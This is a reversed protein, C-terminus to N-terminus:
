LDQSMRAANSPPAKIEVGEAALRRRIESVPCQAGARDLDDDLTSPELEGVQVLDEVWLRAEALALHDVVVRPDSGADKRVQTIPRQGELPVRVTDVLRVEVLLLTRFVTGVPHLRLRDPAFAVAAVDVVRDAVVQRCQDPKGVEGVQLKVGVKRQRAIHRDRRHHDEVEVGTGRRRDDLAATDPEPDSLQESLELDLNKGLRRPRFAQLEVDRQVGRHGIVVGLGEGVRDGLQELLLMRLQHQRAHALARPLPLDEDVPLWFSRM